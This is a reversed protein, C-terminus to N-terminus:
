TATDIPCYLLLPTHEAKFLLLLLLLGRRSSTLLKIALVLKAPVLTIYNSYFTHETQLNHPPEATDLETKKLYACKKERSKKFM